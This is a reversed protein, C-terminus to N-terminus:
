SIEEILNKKKSTSVKAEVKKCKLKHESWHGVQCKRSCYWASKCISCRKEAVEGCAECIPKSNIELISEVDICSAFMTMEKRIDDTCLHFYSLANKAVDDLSKKKLDNSLVPIQELICFTSTESSAVNVVSLQEIFKHFDTLVSIQTKLVENFHRRLGTLVSRRHDDIEYKQAAVPNCIMLYLALWLQAKLPSLKLLEGAKVPVWEKGIFREMKGRDRREWPFEDILACLVCPVDHIKFIRQLLPLSLKETMQAIYRMITVASGCISFDM